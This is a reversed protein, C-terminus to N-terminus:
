YKLRYHQLRLILTMSNYIKCFKLTMNKMSKAFILCLPHGIELSSWNSIKNLTDGPTSAYVFHKPPLFLYRVHWCPEQFNAPEEIGPPCNRLSSLYIFM